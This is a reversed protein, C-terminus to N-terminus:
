ALATSARLYATSLACPIGYASSASQHQTARRPRLPLPLRIFCGTFGLGTRPISSYPHLLLSHTLPKCFQMPATRCYEWPPYLLQLRPLLTYSQQRLSPHMVDDQADLRASVRDLLQIQAPRRCRPGKVALSRSVASPLTSHDVCLRTHMTAVVLSARVVIGRCTVPVSNSCARLHHTFVRLRDRGLM